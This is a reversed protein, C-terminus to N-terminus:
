EFFSASSCTIIFYRFRWSSDTSIEQHYVSRGQHTIEVGMIENKPVAPVNVNLFVGDPLGKKILESAVTLAFDAAYTFDAEEYTTLSVAMSPIGQIAGEMAASVTGSYTVDDGLNAGHNIGSVVIDPRWDKMLHIGLLICDSPTGDSSFYHVGEKEGLDLVRMPHFFTLGHGVASRERDPAVVTVKGIRSLSEALLIIGPSKIGDDNSILIHKKKIRM